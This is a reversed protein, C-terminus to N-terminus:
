KVVNVDHPHSERLGAASMKIFQAKEQMEELTQAGCYSMGSRLGGILQHIVEAVKGRYPVMAEVGEPVYDNPEDKKGERENRGLQAGFSAMGRCVKQKIGNRIITVGPSEDTGALLSGLMVNQAGAALAKTIDGSTKIGGDAIIPINAQKAAQACDLIAQLQPVGSGTVVRTICISNHVIANNAIFSHTPCAVELDYVETYISTEQKELLKIAQYDKTLRKAGTNLISAVYSQHLNEMVTNLGGVRRAKKGNNPFVGTLLYTLITFLEILYRSTNHFLVRGEPEINGDSDILGDLIGRLYEKNHSLFEAPLNKNQRKGFRQLFEAFPKYYLIVIFINKREYIKCQKGFMSSICRTLKEVKHQEHKGFYWRVSGIHSNDNIIATHASGDGLFTGFIYGLDYTPKLITDVEYQLTKHNGSKRKKLQIEFSDPLEFSMNRPM